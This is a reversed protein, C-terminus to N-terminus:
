NLQMSPIAEWTVEATPRADEVVTRIPVVVRKEEMLCAGNGCLYAIMEVVVCSEAEKTFAEVELLVVGTAPIM